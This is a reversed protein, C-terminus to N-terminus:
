LIARYKVNTITEGMSALQECMDTLKVFHEHVDEDEGCHTNQLRQSLNISILSSRGKYIGKLADWVNKAHMHMKVRAFVDNTVTQAIVQKVYADDVCWRRNPTMNGINSIDIYNQTITGSTLHEQINKAKLAWRLRNCYSVWNSGNPLLKDMTSKIDDGMM